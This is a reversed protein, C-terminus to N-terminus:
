ELEVRVNCSLGARLKSLDQNNDFRIKVPVRQVIKTFNGTANSPPLISFQSGTAPSISDVFAKFKKGPFADIKVIVKQDKHIKSIDVEKFNAIVWKDKEVIYGISTQPSVLQGVKLTQLSIIGSVKAKINTYELELLGIKKNVDLFIENNKAESIEKLTEEQSLKNQEINLKISRYKNKSIQNSLFSKDYEQKSIANGKVLISARKFDKNSLDLNQQASDLSIFFIKLENDLKKLKLNLIDIQNKNALLQSDFKKVQLKYEQDDIKAIIQDESIVSNDKVLVETIYGSAKPRITVINTELFADDTYASSKTFLFYLFLFLILLFVLISIIKFKKNIVM